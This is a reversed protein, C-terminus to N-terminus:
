LWLFGGDPESGGVETILILFAEELSEPQQNSHQQKQMHQKM